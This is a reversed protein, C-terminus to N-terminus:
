FKFNGYIFWQNRLSVMLPAGSDGYCTDKGVSAAYGACVHTNPNFLYQYDPDLAIYKCSNMPQVALDVYNLVNPYVVSNILPVVSGWGASYLKSVGNSSLLSDDRAYNFLCIYDVNIDREISRDLLILAIDNELTQKKYGPHRIIKLTRCENNSGLQSKDTFGYYIRVMSEVTRFEGNM